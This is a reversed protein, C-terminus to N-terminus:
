LTLPELTAITFALDIVSIRQSLPRTSRRPKNNILFNYEEIMEELVFTNQRQHYHSNWLPSHANM